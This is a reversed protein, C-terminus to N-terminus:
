NMRQNSSKWIARKIRTLITSYMSDIQLRSKNGLVIPARKVWPVYEWKWLQHNNDHPGMAHNGTNIFVIPHYHDVFYYQVKRQPVPIIKDLHITDEEVNHEGSYIGYFEFYDCQNDKSSAETTGAKENGPRNTSHKILHIRFTEVDFVRGYLFFRIKEYIRNLVRHKRLAENNFILSIELDASSDPNVKKSCHVERLFNKLSDVAPQYIIPIFESHNQIDGATFINDNKFENDKTVNYQLNIIDGMSSQNASERHKVDVNGQAKNAIRSSLALYDRIDEYITQIATSRIDIDDRAWQWIWYCDDLQLVWRRHSTRASVPLSKRGSTALNITDTYPESIKGIDIGLMFRLQVPIRGMYDSNKNTKSRVVIRVKGQSLIKARSLSCNDWDWRKPQKKEKWRFIKKFGLNWTQYEKQLYSFWVAGNVERKNRCKQSATVYSGEDYEVKLPPEITLTKKIGKSQMCNSLGEEGRHNSLLATESKFPKSLFRVIM